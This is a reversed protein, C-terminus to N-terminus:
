PPPASNPSSPTSSPSLPLNRKPNRIEAATFTVNNWADASFLSGTQVVALVALLGVMAIPGGVGVQVPHLAFLLACLAAILPPISPRLLVRFLCVAVAAHLAIDFAANPAYDTGFMTVCLWQSFFGLPRFISGAVFFHDTVFLAWPAGIMRALALQAFDDRGWFGYLNPYSVASVAAVILVAIMWPPIKGSIRGGGVENSPM